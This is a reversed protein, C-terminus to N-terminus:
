LLRVKNVVTKADEINLGTYYNSRIVEPSNGFMEAALVLNGNSANVTRTIANRRFSHTGLIVGKTQQYGLSKIM